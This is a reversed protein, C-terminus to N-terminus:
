RRQPYIDPHSSRRRHGHVSGTLPLFGPCRSRCFFELIGKEALWERKERIIGDMVQSRVPGQEVVEFRVAGQESLQRENRRLKSKKLSSFKENFHTNWDSNLPFAYGASAAPIGPLGALPNLSKNIEAPQKDLHVAGVRPLSNLVLALLDQGRPLDKRVM